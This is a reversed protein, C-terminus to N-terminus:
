NFLVWAPKRLFLADRFNHLTHQLTTVDVFCLCNVHPLVALVTFGAQKYLQQESANFDGRMLVLMFVSASHIAGLM